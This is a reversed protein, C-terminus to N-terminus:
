EDTQNSRQSKVYQKILLNAIWKPWFVLFMDYDEKTRVNDEITKSTESEEHIRHYMLAEDVYKFGGQYHTSIDYWAYWDLNTRMMENFQFNKLLHLNYTVAPCCIPNGLALIRNRLVRSKAVVNLGKLLLKKVKLLKNDSVIKENRLESYHTFIISYPKGFYKAIKELYTPVYVDDQHVITVYQTKTFRLAANWDKGIGSETGLYLPLQYKEVLQRIHKNDTSTYIAINTQVTQQLLSQICAELYPSEGYACIMFTHNEIKEIM